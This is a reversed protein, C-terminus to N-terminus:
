WVVLWGVLWGFLWAAERQLSNQGGDKGVRTKGRNGRGRGGGRSTPRSPPLESVPFLLIFHSPLAHYRTFPVALRDASREAAARQAAERGALGKAAAVSLGVESMLQTSDDMRHYGRDIRTPMPGAGDFFELLEGPERGPLRGLLFIVGLGAVAPLLRLTLRM